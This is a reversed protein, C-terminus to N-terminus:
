SSISAAVSVASQSAARSPQLGSLCVQKACLKGSLVAGEMSALYKQLTFDGALFMNKIPTNQTPRFSNRDRTAKYVSLPTKVVAYKLLKAKSGDAALETPFLRYLEYMTAAIIDDDSKSIWGQSACNMEPRSFDYCM